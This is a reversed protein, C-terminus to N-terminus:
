KMQNLSDVLLRDIPDVRILGVRPFEYDVIMYLASALLVAFSITSVWNRAPSHSMEYGAILSAVVVTLGLMVFVVFPPHIMLAATNSTTIDIVQNLSALVLSREAPGIGGVAEVAKRWMKDQLVTSRDLAAQVDKMDPIAHNLTVDPIAENVALRSRVYTRFDDRLEQQKEPPLLDLRLYATGIAIAEQVVLNRRVDFRAAAGSFTFAILLGMLGFISADITPHLSQFRQPNRSRLHVGMRYGGDITLLMAGILGTIVLVLVAM